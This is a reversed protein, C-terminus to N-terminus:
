EYEKPTFVIRCSLALHPYKQLLAHKCRDRRDQTALCWAHHFVIWLEQLRTMSRLVNFKLLRQLAASSSIKLRLIRLDAHSSLFAYPDSSRHNDVSSWSSVQSHHVMDWDLHLEQLAQQAVLGAYVQDVLRVVNKLPCTLWTISTCQPMYQTDYTDTEVGIAMHQVAVRESEATFVVFPLDLSLHELSSHGALGNPLDNPQGNRSALHIWFKRFLEINNKWFDQTKNFCWRFIGVRYPDLGFHLRKLQSFVHSDVLPILGHELLVGMHDQYSLLSSGLTLSLRQLQKGLFGLHGVLQDVKGSLFSVNHTKSNHSFLDIDLDLDTLQSCASTLWASAIDGKNSHQLNVNYLRLTQLQTQCLMFAHLDAEYTQMFTLYLPDDLPADRYCNLEYDFRHLTPPLHRLLHTAQLQSLLRKPVGRDIVEVQTLSMFLSVHLHRLHTLLSLAQWDILLSMPRDICSLNLSLLTHRAMALLLHHYPVFTLLTLRSVHVRRNVVSSFSSPGHNSSEDNDKMELVQDMNAKVVRSFAIPSGSSAMDIGAIDAIAHEHRTILRKYGHINHYRRPSSNYNRYSEYAAPTSHHPLLRQLSTNRAQTAGQPSEALGEVPDKVLSNWFRTYWYQRCQVLHLMDIYETLPALALFTDYPLCISYDHLKIVSSSNELIYETNTNSDLLTSPTSASTFTLQDLRRRKNRTLM